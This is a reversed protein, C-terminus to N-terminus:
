QKKSIWDEPDLYKENFIMFKLTSKSGNEEMYVEGIEQKLEVNEGQKVKVTALNQYVSLYKGHRIMVGMNAGTIKFVGVIQGKFISRVPTKGFSTIEIGINDETVYELIPHKQIGFQSTVIGKEVPWPLRSKNDAFNDGIIKQEPTLDTTKSKRREAEIIGALEKEIRQAIKRKQELEKKLQKEKNGFSNVLRKKKTQEGQLLGRQKEERSKLDSVNALDEELKVKSKEIEEKLELIIETEKHRFENVQQLYKLRKYGQNFDKASLIYVVEPNGKKAKYLNVITKAYDNKMSVLDKEMLDISQTNFSIRETLLNIEEKMGSIVNERLALKNGIIKLQDIGTSKEKTTEKILNDVYSIEDLTKKRQDELEKRTQAFSAPLILFGLFVIIFIKM